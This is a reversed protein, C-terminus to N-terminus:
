LRTVEANEREVPDAPTDYEYRPFNEDGQRNRTRSAALMFGDQPTPQWKAIGAFSRLKVFNTDRWGETSEYIVGGQWALDTVDERGDATNNDRSRFHGTVLNM